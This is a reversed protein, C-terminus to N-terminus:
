FSIYQVLPFHDQSKFRKRQKPLLLFSFVKNSAASLFNKRYLTIAKSRRSEPFNIADSVILPHDATYDKAKYSKVM